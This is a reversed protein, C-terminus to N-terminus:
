GGLLAEVGALYDERTVDAMLLYQVAYGIVLSHLVQAVPAPDTGAPLRGGRVARRAIEVFHERLREQPPRTVAMVGPSRM